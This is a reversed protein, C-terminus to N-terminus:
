EDLNLVPTHRRLTEGRFFEPHRARQLLMLVVGLGIVGVGILFVLGIGGIESGSGFAPDISDVATTFFTVVLM